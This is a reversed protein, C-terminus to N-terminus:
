LEHYYPSLSIILIYDVKHIYDGVDLTMQELATGKVYLGCDFGYGLICLYKESKNM